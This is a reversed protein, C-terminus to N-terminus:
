IRSRTRRQTGSVALSRRTRASTSAGFGAFNGNGADGGDESDSSVVQAERVAAAAAAATTKGRKRPSAARAPPQSGGEEGDEDAEGSPLSVASRKTGRTDSAVTSSRQTASSSRVTAASRRTRSSGGPRSTLISLDEENDDSDLGTLDLNARVPEPDSLMTDDGVVDPTRAATTGRQRGTQTAAAATSAPAAAKRRSRPAEVESDDSLVLNINTGRVRGGKPPAELLETERGDVEIRKAAALAPQGGSGSRWYADGIGYDNSETLQMVVPQRRGSATGRQPRSGPMRSNPQSARSSQSKSRFKKFNPVGQGEPPQSQQPTSSASGSMGSNGTARKVVLPVFDVQVFNGRVDIRLEEEALRKFAEFDEDVVFKEGRGKASSAEAAKGGRGGRMGAATPKTIKLQNFEDDFEDMKKRRSKQTNLALLFQPETDPQGGREVGNRGTPLTTGRIVQNGTAAAGATTSPPPSVATAGRCNNTRPEDVISVSRQRKRAAVEDADAVEVDQSAARRKRAAARLRHGGESEATDDALADEPVTGLRARGGTTRSTAAATHAHQPATSSGQRHDLADEDMADQTPKQADASFGGVDAGPDLSQTMRRDEEDLEMRYKKSRPVAAQTGVSGSSADSGAAVSAGGAVGQLLHDFIDSRRSRTGEAGTRRTLRSGARRSPTPPVAATVRQPEQEAKAEAVGHDAGQSSGMAVDPLPALAPALAPAPETSAEGGYIEDLINARQTRRRLPRRAPAATEPAKETTPLHSAALPAPRNEPQEDAAESARATPLPTPEPELQMEAAAPPEARTADPDVATTAADADTPAPLQETPSAVAERQEADGDVGEVVDTPIVNLSSRVDVNCIAQTVVHFGSPMAIQLDACAAACSRRWAADDHVENYLVVLGDDPAERMGIADSNERYSIARNRYPMLLKAFDAKTRLGEAVPDHWLVQAGGLALINSYISFENEDDPLVVLFVCTTGSFMRTRKEAPLMREGIDAAGFFDEPNVDPLYCAADPEHFDTELSDAHHRPLEGRRLLEEVFAPTIIPRMQILAGLMTETPKIQTVCLHTYGDRWKAKAPSLYIGLKHATDAYPDIHAQKIRGAFCIDYPRWVLRLSITNTLAFSCGHDLAVTHQAPVSTEHITDPDDPQPRYVLFSTRSKSSEFTITVPPRVDRNASQEPDLAAVSIHCATRSVFKSEVVIDAPIKRGVVYSEGCKLLKNQEVRSDEGFRGQLLWM